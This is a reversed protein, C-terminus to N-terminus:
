NYYTLGSMLQNYMEYIENFRKYVEFQTNDRDITRDFISDADYVNGYKDEINVDRTQPNILLQVDGYVEQAARMATLRAKQEYVNNDIIKNDSNLYQYKLNYYGEEMIMDKSIAQMAQTKNIVEDDRKFQGFDDISITTGDYLKYDYGWDIMSNIEQASRTTPNRNIREQAEEQLLGPIFVQYRRGDNNNAKSEEGVGKLTILVGIKGNSVMSALEMQSPNYNSILNVLEGREKDDAPLLTEDTDEKNYKNTYMEYNGSGISYIAAFINPAMAKAQKNYTSEDIEGSDLMERLNTLEDSLLPGATSSYDKFELDKEKFYSARTTKADNIINKFEDIGYNGGLKNGERDYGTITPDINGFVDHVQRERANHTTPLYYLIKNALPNSKDFKLVTKGEKNMVKVGADTLDQKSLGSAAYFNEITNDNDKALFDLGLFSRKGPYFTVDLVNAEEEVKEGNILNGGIKSGIKAKAKELEGVYSSLSEKYGAAEGDNSGYLNRELGGDVFVNDAFVIKALDEPSQVRSYIADLIRGNRRLNIIDSEHQRQTVPDNFHYQAAYDAADLYQRNSVLQNFHTKNFAKDRFGATNGSYIGTDKSNQDFFTYDNFTVKM